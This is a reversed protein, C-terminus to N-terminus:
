SLGGLFNFSLLQTQICHKLTFTIFLISSSSTLVSLWISFSNQLFDCNSNYISYNSYSKSSYAVVVRLKHRM